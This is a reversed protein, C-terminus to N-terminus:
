NNEYLERKLKVKKINVNGAQLESFRINKYFIGDFEIGYEDFEIKTAEIFLNLHDTKTERNYVKKIASLYLFLDKSFPKYNGQHIWFLFCDEKSSFEIDYNLKLIDIYDSSLIITDIHLEIATKRSQSFCIYSISIFLIILLNRM